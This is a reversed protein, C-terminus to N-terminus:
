ISLPLNSCRLGEKVPRERLIAGGPAMRKLEGPIIATLHGRHSKTHALTPISKPQSLARMQQKLVGRNNYALVYKSDGQLARDFDDRAGDLDGSMFLVNGRNYFVKTLRPNLQLASAYDSLAKEVDNMMGFVNGRNVFADASAPNIELTKSYDAVAADLEGKEQRVLARNFYTLAYNPSIQIAITYDAIARDLDGQTHFKDGREVYSAATKSQSIAVPTWSFIAFLM